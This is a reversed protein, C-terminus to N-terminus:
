TWPSPNTPLRTTDSPNMVGEDFSHALSFSEAKQPARTAPQMSHNAYPLLLLLLLLLLM